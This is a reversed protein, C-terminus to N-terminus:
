PKTQYTKYNWLLSYDNLDVAYIYGNWDGFYLTDNCITVTTRIIAKGSTTFKFESIGTAANIGHINGYEDGYYIRGDYWYPSSHHYDWEDKKLTPTKGSSEEPIYQWCLAGSYKNIAFLTNASTIYVLSDAVLPTSSVPYATNFKWYLYNSDSNIAYLNGDSSGFYIMSDDVIPSSEIIGDTVFKWTIPESNVLSVKYLLVLVLLSLRITNVPKM